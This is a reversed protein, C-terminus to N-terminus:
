QTCGILGKLSRWSKDSRETLLKLWLQFPKSAELLVYVLSRPRGQLHILFTDFLIKLFKSRLHSVEYMWLIGINHTHIHIIYTCFDSVISFCMKISAILIHIYYTHTYSHIYHTYLYTTEHIYKHILIYYFTFPEVSFTFMSAAYVKKFKHLWNWWFFQDIPMWQRRWNELRAQEDSQIRNLFWFKFVYLSSFNALNFSIRQWKLNRFRLGYDMRPLIFSKYNSYIARMM